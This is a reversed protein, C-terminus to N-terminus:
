LSFRAKHESPAVSLFPGGSTEQLMSSIGGPDLSTLKATLKPGLWSHWVPEQLTKLKERWPLLLHINEPEPKPKIHSESLFRSQLDSGPRLCHRGVARLPTRARVEQRM